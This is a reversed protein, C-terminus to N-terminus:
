ATARNSALSSWCPPRAIHRRQGTREVYRDGMERRRSLPRGDAPGDQQVRRHFMAVLNDHLMDEVM